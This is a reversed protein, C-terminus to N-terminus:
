LFHNLFDDLFDNLFFFAFFCFATKMQWKQHAQISSYDLAYSPGKRATLVWSM